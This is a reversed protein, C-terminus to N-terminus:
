SQADERWKAVTYRSLALAPDWFDPPLGAKHKLHGIFLRPDRFDEWVQPLFTSRHYGYHLIVGDIGPRLQALADAEDRYIMREVASLVSVEVHMADFEAPALPKFRPDRFAAAVANANVDAGLARHAELTGICGRLEGHKKLTVFSAGPAHLWPADEVAPASLALEAAIAARVLPLLVAGANSPLAAGADGYLLTRADTANFQAGPPSDHFAFAGYGVVRSRDGATDGSNRLDILEPELGRKRAAQLLGNVPTGGCAQEHSIAPRMDVITQATVRDVAQADAYDLFHSLDSSIVILTEAGGWLIDLVQAVEAATANGVALPVVSFDGLVQQLFPLQVELSHEQAHAAASVTVQPLKQLVSVAAADVAVNGLPTALADAAPLALGRVPVRHVPGLLVVRTIVGRAPALRAYVAAAIPGSYIYGAHPAIIAKPVPKGLAGAAARALLASVDRALANASAPYFTGAVAAPRISSM